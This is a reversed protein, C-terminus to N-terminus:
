LCPRAAPLVPLDRGGPRCGTGTGASGQLEGPYQRPDAHRGQADRGHRLHLDPLRCRRAGAGGAGARRGLRRRRAGAPRELAANGARGPSSARSDWGCGRQLEGRRPYRSASPRGAAGEADIGCEIGAGGPCRQRAAYPSPGGDHQHYLGAGHDGGAAHHRFRRDAMGPPKGVRHRGPRWARRGPEELGCGGQRDRSAVERWSQDRWVGDRKSILLPRDALREAQDFFM